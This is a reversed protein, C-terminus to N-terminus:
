TGEKIGHAAKIKYDKFVVGKSADGVKCDRVWVRKSTKKMTRWHGRRNHLRPSAHTGGQHPMKETIPAVEVTRWDFLAPGKGKTARKSNILSKRAVPVHAQTPKQLGRLFTSVIAMTPMYQARKPPTDKVGYIRTGEPTNIYSFPEINQPYAGVFLMGGVAVSETGGILALMFKSGDADRGVVVTRQYPLCFMEDDNVFACDLPLDGVDFWHYLEPDPAFKVLESILPTM